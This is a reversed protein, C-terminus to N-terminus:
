VVPRIEACFPIAAARAWKTPYAPSNAARRDLTAIIGLSESAERYQGTTLSPRGLWRLQDHASRNFKCLKNNIENLQQVLWDTFCFPRQGKRLM